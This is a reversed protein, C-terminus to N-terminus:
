RKYKECIYARYMAISRSLDSNKNKLQCKVYTGWAYLFVIFGIIWPVWVPLFKLGDIGIAVGLCYTLYGLFDVKVGASILRFARKATGVRFGAAHYMALTKSHDIIVDGAMNYEDACVATTYVIPINKMFPPFKLLKVRAKKSRYITIWIRPAGCCRAAYAHGMEHILVINRNVGYIMLFGVIMQLLNVNELLEIM